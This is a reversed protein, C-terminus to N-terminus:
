RVRKLYEHALQVAMAGEGVGSAVRKVSGLRVDGAALVGPVNTELLMPERGLPWEPPLEGDTRLDPGTLLFGRGDTRLLGGMWGTQPTAGIFLFLQGAPVTERAGTRADALELSELHDTGHAAAVTTCFRVELNERAEVQDILYRSMSTALTDGRVLLVVHAAHEAFMLAAQGASNGAGVLYVWDGMCERAQAMSSGYYIGRGTLAEVGPADLKRWDLGVTLLLVHCSLESGDDLTVQRYTDDAGVGVVQSAVMEAGLRDAQETARETFERGSVGRPFGLYNEIMSSTGAQGGPAQSEVLLTRLGESAGYVSAALGAPGAGVVILDYFPREAVTRLGARQALERRGPTQLSTGDQFVVLPLRTPDAQAREVLQAGAKAAIDHWEYPVLNRELFDRVAYSDPSWRNGVVRVGSFPPHYSRQWSTLLDDLVPYLREEPPDWPKLLYYDLRADNIAQIAASTDAYATLLVRKADADYDRARELFEVGTMGPMRQDVLLLAVPDARLSLQRLADLAADGSDARRIRYDKAYRNRLDREVARLVGPDDDVALIVPKAM